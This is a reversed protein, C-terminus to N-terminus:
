NKTRVMGKRNEPIVKDAETPKPKPKPKAGKKRKVIDFRQPTNDIVKRPRCKSCYEDVRMQYLTGCKVCYYDPRNPNYWKSSKEM